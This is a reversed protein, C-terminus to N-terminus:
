QGYPAPCCRDRPNADEAVLVRPRGHCVSEGTSNPVVGAVFIVALMM